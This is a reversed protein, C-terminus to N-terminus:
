FDSNDPQPTPHVNVPDSLDSRDSVSTEAGSIAAASLCLGSVQGPLLLNPVLKFVVTENRLSHPPIEIIALTKILGYSIISGLVSACGLLDHFFPLLPECPSRFFM